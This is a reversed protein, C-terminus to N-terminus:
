GLRNNSKNVYIKKLHAQATDTLLRIVLTVQEDDLERSDKGLLKRAEKVSIVPLEKM